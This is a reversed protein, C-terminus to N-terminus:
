LIRLKGPKPEYITGEELLGTIIDNIDQVPAKLSMILKDIEIGGEADASEITELIQTRISKPQNVIFASDEVKESEINDRDVVGQEQEKEQMAETDQEKKLELSEKFETPMELKRVLLWRADVPKVIEPLIYLEDNFFRLLGIVLVTDGMEVNKLLHVNDSFAKVRLDGTGDDVTISIYQKEPNHYKDIVNAIINVRVVEKDKVVLRSFREQEFELNGQRILGLPMRFATFRKKIETQEPM